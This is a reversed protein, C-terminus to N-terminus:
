DCRQTILPSDLCRVTFEGKFEVDAKFASPCTFYQLKMLARSISLQFELSGSGSEPAKPPKTPKSQKIKSPKPDDDEEKGDFHKKRKALSALGVIIGIPLAIIALPVAGVARLTNKLGDSSTSSGGLEKVDNDTEYEKDKKSGTSSDAFKLGEWSPVGKDAFVKSIKTPNNQSLALHLCVESHPPNDAKMGCFNFIEDVLEIPTDGMEFGGKIALYIKLVANEVALACQGNGPPGKIIKGKYTVCWEQIVEDATYVELSRLQSIIEQRRTRHEKTTPILRSIM